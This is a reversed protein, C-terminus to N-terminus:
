RREGGTRNRAARGGDGHNDVASSGAEEDCVETSARGATLIAGAPGPRQSVRAESLVTHVAIGLRRNPWRRGRPGIVNLLMRNPLHHRRRIPRERGHDRAVWAIARCITTIATTTSAPLTSASNSAPRSPSAAARWCTSPMAVASASEGDVAVAILYPLAVSIRCGTVSATRVFVWIANMVIMAGSRVRNVWVSGFWIPPCYMPVM